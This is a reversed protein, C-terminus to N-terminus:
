LGLVPVEGDSPKTDYGPCKNTPLSRVAWDAYDVTIALYTTRTLMFFQVCTHKTQNPKM